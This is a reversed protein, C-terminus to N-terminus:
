NHCDNQAALRSEFSVLDQSLCKLENALASEKMCFYSLCQEARMDPPLNCGGPRWFGLEPDFREAYYALDEERMVRQYGYAIACRACCGRPGDRGPYCNHGTFRCPFDYNEVERRILKLEAFDEDPMDTVFVVKQALQRFNEVDV